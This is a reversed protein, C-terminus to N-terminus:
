FFNFKIKKIQKLLLLYIVIEGGFNIRIFFQYNNNEINDKEIENLSLRDENENLMYNDKLYKTFMEFKSKENKLLIDASHISITVEILSRPKELGYPIIM